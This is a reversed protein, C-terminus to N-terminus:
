KRRRIGRILQRVGRFREQWGRAHTARLVGLLIEGTSPDPRIADDLHPRMRGSRVSVTQPMTMALLGEAGQTVGWGSAGRGGFPTAPHATAVLTDNVIVSGARLRLALHQAAAVNTSFISAALGFPSANALRVADDPSDFPVAATVPAFCAERCFQMDSTSDLLLTPFMEGHRTAETVEHSVVTAGKAKAEATLRSAQELQGPTQLRMPSSAEILPRLKEVFVQYCQRAVFIRRVAICTQGRNLSLGFWASRAALDLDADALVLMADCGSLELTSPVLREGLRAALKRGVVDSGTFILHDVDAEALEAGGERTAPLVQILGPPFHSFLDRIVEAARPTQESPKWVVGNGAALAQAMPVVNLLIPYNWTGIAGVVGLPQRHVADRSGMLWLPRDRRPVRRPALISAARRELFKLAAATPLLDTAILETAPRHVDAHVAACLADAREAIRYRAERVFTLRERLTQRAWLEQAHRCTSTEFGFPLPM